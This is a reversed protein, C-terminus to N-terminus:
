WRVVAVLKFAEFTKNQCLRTNKADGHEIVHEEEGNLESNSLNTM